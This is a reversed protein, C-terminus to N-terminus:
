AANAEELARLPDPHWRSIGAKEMKALLKVSGDGGMPDVHAHCPPNEWPRLGLAKSQCLSAAFEAVKQWPEPPCFFGGRPNPHSGELKGKIHEARRPDRMVVQMALELAERDKDTTM